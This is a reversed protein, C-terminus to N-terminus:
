RSRNLAQDRREVAAGAQLPIAVLTDFCSSDCIAVREKIRVVGGEV